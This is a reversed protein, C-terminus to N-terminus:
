RIDRAVRLGLMNASVQTPTYTRWAARVDGAPSDWTGGRISHQTCGLQTIPAGDRPLRDLTDSWCDATWEAVNGSTDYLGLPNAPFSGVPATFSWQDRGGVGSYNADEHSPVNGWFYAGDTRARAVYEWEAESLLRYSETTKRGLWRVYDQADDWSVCVVPDTDGNQQYGPDRWHGVQGQATNCTSPMPRGTEASFATYQARTVEFRSVAIRKITVTIQPGEVPKRGSEGQHSGMVFTGPPVIIMEPCDPCERFCSLDNPGPRGTTCPARVVLNQQSTSTQNRLAANSRRLEEVERRLEADNYRAIAESPCNGVCAAGLSAHQIWPRQAGGTVREVEGGVRDLMEAVTLGDVGLWNKLANSYPSNRGVGDLAVSGPETAFAIITRAPRARLDAMGRAQSGGRSLGRLRREWPNNRCSDLVLLNFGPEAADGFQATVDKAPVAVGQLITQAQVSPMRTLDIPPLRAGIPILFNEGDVQVAHGAYFIVAQSNQPAAAVERGFDALAQTMRPLDVNTVLTTKFGRSAFADRMDAADNEPNLLDPLRGAQEATDAASASLDTGAIGDYDSNGIILALRQQPPQSDGSAATLALALTACVALVQRM